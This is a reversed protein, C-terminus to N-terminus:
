SINMDVTPAEKDSIADFVFKKILSTKGVSASGLVVIKFCMNGKSDTQLLDVM